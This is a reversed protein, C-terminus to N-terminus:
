DELNISILLVDKTKNDIKVRQSSCYDYVAVVGNDDVIVPISARDEINIKLENYLKKLSKTCGRDELCIEDGAQRTRIVVDGLVKDNDCCFKYEGFDNSNFEEISVIRKDVSKISKVIDINAIRLYIKNSIAFLSGKLQYKGNKTLLDYVGNLHIEDLSFDFYKIIARKTVAKPYKLLENIDLGKDTISSEYCISAYTDLAKEDENAIDIFREIVSELSPNLSKLNPVINHRIYNRSYDDEENTNDTVYPISANKCALRIEDATCNLLPRIINNRTAPIGCLGKLSTGRSLRFLLTEINDNLNHATAIKDANFSEFFAYRANRSYEEVGVGLKKAESPANISISKFEIDNARCYDEVFSTDNISEKGRIGHEVNAVLLRLNLEKQKLMLYNLLMMSDAGGSVGVVVFDGDSLMNHKEVLKDAKTIIELM